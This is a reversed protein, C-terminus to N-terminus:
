HSGSGTGEASGPSRGTERARVAGGRARRIRGNGNQIQVTLPDKGGPFEPKLGTFRRRHSRGSNEERRNERELVDTLYSPKELVKKKKMKQRRAVPSMRRERDCLDARHLTDPTHVRRRVGIIHVERFDLTENGFGMHGEGMHRILVRTGMKYTPFLNM